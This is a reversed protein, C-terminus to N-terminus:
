RKVESDIKLVHELIDAQTMNAPKFVVEEDNKDVISFVPEIHNPNLTRVLDIHQNHFKISVGENKIFANTPIFKKPQNRHSIEIKKINPLHIAKEIEKPMKNFLVQRKM